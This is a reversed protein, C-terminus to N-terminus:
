ALAPALLNRAREPQHLALYADAAAIRVYPPMAIAEKSMAEFQTIVEAMRERERLGLLRDFRTPNREGFQAGIQRETDLAQDTTEFRKPGTVWAIRAHGFNLTMAAATHALEFREDATFQDPKEAALQEALYPAGARSLALVRQKFADGTAPYLEEIQQWSHAAALWQGQQQYAVAESRLGSETTPSAAQAGSATLAGLLIATSSFTCFHRYM